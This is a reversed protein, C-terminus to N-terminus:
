AVIEGIISKPSYAGNWMVELITHMIFETRVNLKLDTYQM